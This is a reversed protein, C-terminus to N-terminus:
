RTTSVMRNSESWKSLSRSLTRVFCLSSYTLNQRSEAHLEILADHRSVAVASKRIVIIGLRSPAIAGDSTLANVFVSNIM